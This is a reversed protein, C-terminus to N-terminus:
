EETGEMSDPTKFTNVRIGKAEVKFSSIVGRESLAKVLSLNGNSKPIVPRNGYSEIESYPQPFTTLLQIATAKEIFPLLKELLALRSETVKSYMVVNQIVQLNLTAFDCSSSQLVNALADIYPTDSKISAPALDGIIAIKKLNDLSSKILLGRINDDIKYQDKSKLYDNFRSQILSARLTPSSSTSSFTKENLNIQGHNALLLQKSDSLPSPFINWTFPSHQVLKIYLDNPLSDCSIILGNLKNSNEKGVESSSFKLKLLEDVMKSNSFVTTLHEKNFHSSSQYQGLIPWTPKLKGEVLAFGWLQEPIDALNDFVHNQQQIIKHKQGLDLHENVLLAAISTGSEETNGAMQLLVDNVYDSINDNLFAQIESTGKTLVTTYNRKECDEVNVDNGFRILLLRLNESNIEYLSKDHIFKVLSHNQEILTLNKICVRLQSLHEYDNADLLTGSFLAQINEEVYTTLIGDHNMDSAVFAPKLYHLINAIHVLGENLKVAASTYEPWHEGLKRIFLAIQEGLDFYSLLFTQSEKFHEAIYNLAQKLRDTNADNPNLILYDVLKNNQAYSLSFDEQRLNLCVEKPTDIPTTPEPTRGARISILFDRDNRTLRGEYFVSIYDHYSEDIHGNRILYALLATDACILQAALDKELDVISKSILVCLPQLRLERITKQATHIRSQLDSKNHSANQRIKEFRKKFTSNPCLEKEIQQASKGTNDNQYYRDQFSVNSNSQVLRLVHAENFASVNVRSNDVYISNASQVNGASMANGLFAHVLGHTDAYVERNLDAIYKECDQIEEEHKKVLDTLKQNKSQIVNYVAGKNLHLDEFDKPYVNKYILVALLKIANIKDSKLQAYYLQFENVINHILRLDNLHWSVERLFREGEDNAFIGTPLRNQIKDLSNSSNIVPLVPIIFDFFKTRQKDAFMHDKIAYIFKVSKSVQANDNILKNIERLKVFIEPSGFRDLDEFVVVKYDTVQFFYIIEDLHRNLISQESTEGLEIEGNSASIKKIPFRFLSRYIDAFALLLPSISFTVAFWALLKESLDADIDFGVKFGYFLTVVALLWLLLLSSIIWVQRNQPTRIRKFRSFPLKNAEVGYLLQQLISREILIHRAREEEQAAIKESEEKFCALSINLFKIKSSKEFTYIVSSKGSGYPGTLAINCIRPSKVAYELADAYHGDKDADDSPMLDVYKQHMPQSEPTSKRTFWSLLSKM